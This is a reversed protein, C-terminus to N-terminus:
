RAPERSSSDFPHGRGEESFDRNRAIRSRAYSAVDVHIPGEISSDVITFRGYHPKHEGAENLFLWYYLGDVKPDLVLKEAMSWPTGPCKPDLWGDFVEERSAPITRTLELDITKLEPKM